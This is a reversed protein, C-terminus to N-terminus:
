SQSESLPWSSLLKGYGQIPSKVDLKSLINWLMAPNSAVVPVGLRDELRQLIPLPDLTAGQFYIAEAAPNRRWSEEVRRFIEDASVDVAAGPNRNKDFFPGFTVTFGLGTLHNAIIGNLDATFPTVLMLRTVSLARLAASVSSVAATVPIGTAEAVHAELDPNFLTVFGGTIILGRVDHKSAFDAARASIEGTKGELDRYSDHLLGLGEHFLFVQPPLIRELSKFHPRDPTAPSLLGIKIKALSVM